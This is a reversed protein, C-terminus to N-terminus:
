GLLCPAGMSLPVFASLLFVENGMSPLLQELSPQSLPCFSRPTEILWAFDEIRCLCGCSRFSWTASFAVVFQILFFFFM